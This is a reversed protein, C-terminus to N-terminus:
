RPNVPFLLLIAPLLVLGVFMAVYRVKRVRSQHSLVVVTVGIIAIVVSGVSFVPLSLGRGLGFVRFVVFLLGFEVGYARLAWKVALWVWAAAGVPVNDAQPEPPDESM